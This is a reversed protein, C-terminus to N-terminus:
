ETILSMAFRKSITRKNHQCILSDICNTNVCSFFISCYYLLATKARVRARPLQKNNKFVKITSECMPTARLHCLLSILIERKNNGITYSSTTSQKHIVWIEGTYDCCNALGTRVVPDSNIRCYKFYSFIALLNKCHYIKALDNRTSIVSFM